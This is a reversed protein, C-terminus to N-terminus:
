IEGMRAKAILRALRDFDEDSLNSASVDLLAAVAETASGEFFTEVLHALAFRKARERVIRPLYVYRLGKEMHKVYGREELGSLMARVASYSPPNPLHKQVDAVTAQRLRYLIDMIQRQRRSLNVEPSKNRM